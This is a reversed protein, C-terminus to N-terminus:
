KDSHQILSKIISKRHDSEQTINKSSHNIYLCSNLEFIASVLTEMDIDVSYILTSTHAQLHHTCIGTIKQCNSHISNQLTNTLVAWHAGGGGGRRVKILRLNYHLLPVKMKFSHKFTSHSMYFIFIEKHNRIKLHQFLITCQSLPPTISYQPICKM